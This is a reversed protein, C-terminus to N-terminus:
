KDSSRTELEAHSPTWLYRVYEEKFNHSVYISLYKKDLLDAVLGLILRTAQGCHATVPLCDARIECSNRALHDAM